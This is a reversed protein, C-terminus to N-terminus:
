SAVDDYMSPYFGLSLPAHFITLHVCTKIVRSELLVMLIEVLMKRLQLTSLHLLFTFEDTAYAFIIDCM